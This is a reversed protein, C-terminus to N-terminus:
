PPVQGWHSLLIDSTTVDGLLLEVNKITADHLSPDNASVCDEPIVVYYGLNFADRLTSDVCINTTVGTIITTKISRERLVTDLQTGSFASYCHKQIILDHDNPMMRYLESGWTGEYCRPENGASGGKVLMPPSLYHPDYIAKVWVITVGAGRAADALNQNRKALAANMGPNLGFKKGVYGDEHCFDNQIDILLLACHAPSVRDSFNNLLEGM